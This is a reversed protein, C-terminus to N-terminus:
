RDVGEPRVSVRGRRNALWWFSVALAGVVILVSVVGIGTLFLVGVSIAILVLRILDYHANVWTDLGSGGPDGPMLGVLRTGATTAWKPRGSLYFGVAVFGAIVIVAVILDRLGVLLNGVIGAATRAGAPSGIQDVVATELRRLVIIGVVFAIAVGLGLQITTRRRDPSVVLALIVLILTVGILAWMARDIRVATEQIAALRDESMVTIQGFDDPVREGLAERFQEIAEDARTSVATPLELDPLLERLDERVPELVRAVVPLLDLRVEGQDITVNPLEEMDGRILAISAEHARRVLQPVLEAMAPSTMVRDVTGAIREEFRTAIPGALAALTPRDIRALLDQGRQNVDFMTLLATSLFADLNALPEQLRQELHLAETVEDTVFDGIAENLQPDDLVPQITEMFNDTDFVTQHAWVAVVSALLSISSALVLLAAIWKRGQLNAGSVDGNGTVGDANATEAARDAPKPSTM